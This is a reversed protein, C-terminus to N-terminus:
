KPARRVALAVAMLFPEWELLSAQESHFVRLVLASDTEDWDTFGAEVCAESLAETTMVGDDDRARLAERLRVYPAYVTACLSAMVADVDTDFDAHGSDVGRERKELHLDVGGVSIGRLFPFYQMRATAEKLLGSAEAPGEFALMLTKIRAQPLAKGVGCKLAYQLDSQTILQGGSMRLFRALKRITALMPPLLKAFCPSSLVDSPPAASSLSVLRTYSSLEGLSADDGVWGRLQGLASEEWQHLEISYARMTEAGLWGARGSVCAHTMGPAIAREVAQCRKSSPSLTLTADPAAGSQNVGHANLITLLDLWCVLSPDSPHRVDLTLLAAESPVLQVGFQWLALRVAPVSLVRTHKPDMAVFRARLTPKAPINVQLPM